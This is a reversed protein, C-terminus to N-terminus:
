LGATGGIWLTLIPKGNFEDPIDLHKACTTVLLIEQIDDRQAYRHIQRTVDSVSGSIKIEIAVTDLLFDPRDTQSVRAERMYPIRNMDLCLAVARQLEDETASRFNYHRFVDRLQVATM